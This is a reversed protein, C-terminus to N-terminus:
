KKSVAKLIKAVSASLSAVKALLTTVQQSLATVAALAAQAQTDADQAAQTAADASDAAANAADTAANAADTAENAADTAANAADDSSGTTSFDAENVTAGELASSTLVGGSNIVGGAIAVNATALPAYLTYTAVGGAFTVNAEGNITQASTGEAATATAATPLSGQLGVNSTPVTTLLGVYTGDAVPNGAADAATLTYLVKTGPDYSSNDTAATLTAVVAPVVWVTATAIVLGTSVDTFTLVTKGESLPNITPYYFDGTSDWSPTASVTAVTTTGSSVAIESAQNPIANGNADDAVVSVPAVDTGTPANAGTFGESDASEFGTVAALPVTTNTTAVLKAITTSYFTVTFTGIVTGTTSDSVTVTSTGTTGDSYLEIKAYGTTDAVSVSRGQSTVSAVTPTGTVASLTGITALGPGAVTAEVTDSTVLTPSTLNNNLTVVAGGAPTGATTGVAAISSDASASTVRLATGTTGVGAAAIDAADNAVVLSNAASAVPAAGWTITETFAATSNGTITITQTGATASYVSTVLNAGFGGATGTGIAGTGASWIESAGSTTLTSTGPAGPYNISGVGTSTITYYTDATGYAITLPVYNGTSISATSAVGTTGTPVGNTAASVVGGLTISFDPAGVGTGGAANAAVSTLGGFALAAAAVLAVRKFATKTSMTKREFFTSLSYKETEAQNVQLLENYVFRDKNVVLHSARASEDRNGRLIRIARSVQQAFKSHRIM